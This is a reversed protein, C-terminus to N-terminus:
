RPAQLTRPPALAFSLKIISFSSSNIVVVVVALVSAPSLATSVTVQQLPPPLQRRWQSPSHITSVKLPAPLPCWVVVEVVEAPFQVEREM